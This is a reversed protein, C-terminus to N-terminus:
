STPSAQSDGSCVFPDCRLASRAARDRALVPPPLEEIAKTSKCSVPSYRDLHLASIKLSRRRRRMEFTQIYRWSGLSLDSEGSLEVSRESSIFTIRRVPFRATM